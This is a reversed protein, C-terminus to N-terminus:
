SQQEPLLVFHGWLPVCQEGNTQKVACLTEHAFVAAVRCGATFSIFTYNGDTKIWLFTLLLKSQMHKVCGGLVFRGPTLTFGHETNWSIVASGPVLLSLSLSINSQHYVAKYIDREGRWKNDLTLDRTLLHPSQQCCWKLHFCVSLYLYSLKTFAFVNEELM